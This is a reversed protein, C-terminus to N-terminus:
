PMNMLIVTSFITKKGNGKKPWKTYKAKPIYLNQKLATHWTNKQSFLKKYCILFRLSSRSVGFNFFNPNQPEPM